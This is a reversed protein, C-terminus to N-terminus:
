RLSHRYSNVVPVGSTTGGPEQRIKPRPLRRWPLKHKGELAVVDAAAEMCQGELSEAAKDEAIDAATNEAAATEAVGESSGAVVLASAKCAAEEAAPYTGAAAFREAGTSKGAAIHAEAHRDSGPAVEGVTRAEAVGVRNDGASLLAAAVSSAVAIERKRERPQSDEAAASRM